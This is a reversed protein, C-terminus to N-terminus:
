GYDSYVVAYSKYDQEPSKFVGPQRDILWERWRCLKPPRLLGRAIPALSESSDPNTRSHSWLTKQYRSYGSQNPTFLFVLRLHVFLSGNNRYAHCCFPQIEGALEMKHASKFPGTENEKRTINAFSLM